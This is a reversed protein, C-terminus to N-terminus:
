EDDTAGAGVGSVGELENQGESISHVLALKPSASLWRRVRETIRENMQLMLDRYLEEAGSKAYCTDCLELTWIRFEDEPEEDCSSCSHFSKKCGRCTMM